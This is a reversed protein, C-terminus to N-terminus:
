AVIGRTRLPFDMAAMAERWLRADAKERPFMADPVAQREGWIRMIRAHELTIKRQRYLSDIVKMVDDIECPRPVAGIGGVIRAGDRRAILGSMCWFWADAASGFPAAAVSASM